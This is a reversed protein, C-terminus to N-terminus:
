PWVSWKRSLTDGTNTCIDPNSQDTHSRKIFGPKRSSFVLETYSSAYLSPSFFLVLESRFCYWSFMKFGQMNSSLFFFIWYYSKEFHFTSVDFKQCVKWQKLTIVSYLFLELCYVIMSFIDYFDTKLFYNKRMFYNIERNRQVGLRNGEGM